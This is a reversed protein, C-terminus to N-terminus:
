DAWFWRVWGGKVSKERGTADFRQGRDRRQRSNPIDGATSGGTGFPSSAAKGVTQIIPLTEVSLDEWLRYPDDCQCGSVWAGGGNFLGISRHYPYRFERHAALRNADNALMREFSLLRGMVAGIQM